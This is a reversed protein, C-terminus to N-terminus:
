DLRFDIPLTLYCNIPKSKITIIGFDKIKNLLEIGAKELGFGLETLAKVNKIEGKKNVIFGLKITGEYFVNVAEQPYVLNKYIESMFNASQRDFKPEFQIENFITDNNSHWYDLVIKFNEIDLVRAMQMISDFYEFHFNPQTLLDEQKESRFEVLKRKGDVDKEISRINGNSYYVPYLKQGNAINIGLTLMLLPLIAKTNLNMNKKILAVDVM